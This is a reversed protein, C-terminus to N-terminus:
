MCRAFMCGLMCVGLTYRAIRFMCCTLAYLHTAPDSRKTSEITTFAKTGWDGLGLQDWGVQLKYSTFVDLRVPDDHRRHPAMRLMRDQLAHSRVPAHSCRIEKDVRDDYVSVRGSRIRQPVPQRYGYSSSTVVDVMVIASQFMSGTVQLKYGCRGHRIRKPFSQRYEWGIM